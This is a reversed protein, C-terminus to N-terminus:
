GPGGTNKCHVALVNRGPKLAKRAEARLPMEEFRPGPAQLALVGNVYVEAHDDYGVLLLLDNWKGEPLKFERWLWIDPTNWDTRVSAFEQTGFAGIGQKWEKDDFDAKQWGEAPQQTTYHWKQGPGKATPVMSWLEPVRAWLAQWEKQEHAPLRALAAADRLGALDAENRWANLTEVIAPRDQPPGSNFAKDWATREAKLWDLAQGRLKAKAADDLQPGDKGARAAALAAARAAHYRHQAQRDDGLKPDAQLARAFYTTAKDNRGNLAYAAALKLWPDTFKPVALHRQERESNLPDPSVSLRFRGLQYRPDAKFELTVRLGTGDPVAVPEALEFVAFHATGGGNIAWGTRENADIAAAVYRENQSFDAWANALKLSRAAAPKTAPDLQAKITTLTFNGNDARGPGNQPLSGHTLVELRLARISVPPHRFTLTYVDNPPNSGSALISNDELTTLTAGGESKMEGPKLVTWRTTDILLLDALEAALAANDPEKALKAEFLARARTRATNALPDNGREAYHRTLEAQFRGDDAASRALELLVTQYPAAAAIVLAKGARDDARQLAKGFFELAKENGGNLAYAVGLKSWPDTLKLAALRKKERDFTAPDTSVSLRFRGLTHQPIRSKCELTVRLAMDPTERLPGALDFLAFHRKGGEPHIAWGTNDDTDIACDVNWGGQSFDAFARALKLTRAGSVNTLSDLQVNITTLVFNGNGANRGPGNAPLSEHPLVELRLQQIRPPSNRFTLAYVDKAPNLGSVLISNDELVTLTAGGESKMAGPKLDAKTEGPRLVTWRTTDSLLLDALETALAANDPEKALRGEFWARARTRATNALPSNSREDYHRTLEAQFRGDNPASEALKELLGPLPAATAIIRAKGARDATVKLEAKLWDLAQQRLKANSAADFPPEDKGQGAILVAVRAFELRETSNAPEAAKAVEAWFHTFAKQEEPPLKALAAQDRIGALAREQQWQWLNRAIFVRPPQAKSWAVLEAKLWDLAQRRLEAKAIDDLPLQNKGKGAATLAAARAAAYRDFSRFPLTRAPRFGVNGGRGPPREANRNAARLSSAPNDLGGGRLARWAANPIETIDELDDTAKGIGSDSYPKSADQCWEWDNGHMDFLGFDNPKLSGVPWSKNPGNKQYWAYRPLLEDSEGFYFRTVAGARCAFEWEAETPLRYGTRQLYNAAMKMGPAYKGEANPEYCWQDPPIGEQESLWNCYKAADFWSVNNVPCDDSPAHQRSVSHHKRFRLFQDVTVEKSAIAFSRSIRTWHRFEDKGEPGGARGEEALPSGMWYEMPGPVVVLMQGQGNVYWRAEDKGKEKKLEHEIQELTRSQQQRDEAWAENTEKLWAEKKWQRLLWEAAAHLGPATATRYMDLVKPLLAKRDEPTFTKESFEGLSLLLAFRITPDSERDLQKVIARPDAGLPALAHILYSRVQPDPSHKLLPWVKEPRNMRLLAVAANVQRKTLNEKSATLDVDLAYGGAAQFFEVKILHKGRKHGVTVSTATPSNPGWNEFVVENDLWVRVGDDFTSTLRYEGEGLTVEATAVAAFFEGPVKPTVPRPPDRGDVFRLHAVKREDLVPSKLVAGWDAPPNWQGRPNKGANDWRHFRVTWDSYAPPLLQRSLESTLIPVGREGQEKLKPYIVAFQKDDADMLLDALVLPQDAAYDALIDTARTREASRNTSRYVLSLPALLQVRVPRLAGKWATLDAAPVALLDNVVAVQTDQDAVLRPELWVPHAWASGGANHVRLELHKISRISVACDQIDGRKALPTSKWISKGNGLVEFTLPATPNRQKAALAPIGVRAVFQSFPRDLDYSVSAFTKAAPHTFLSHPCRAGDVVIPFLGSCNVFGDKRFYQDLVRVNKEKLTSLFVVAEVHLNSGWRKSDPDYKALAAAARLRQSEKGKEPKEVVAWLRDLLRDKYPFLADRVVPLVDRPNADLLRGFLYDVQGPDAPVLALSAHFKQPSTEPVARLMRDTWQRFEAMQAIIPPVKPTDVNLALQVLGYAKAEKTKEEAIRRQLAESKRADRENQAAQAENERLRNFYGAALLSAVAVLVLVAALAGSLAAIGPNHRAWRWYREVQTQRRAQIPEDDQFRKLDAELEAASPYRRAPDREIAKHVITVLDRPVEPNLRDLRAPEATTVQKILRNREKEDFAPRFALLEYLTLGLAYVDGRADSNGDFAEPPMYRLTGLIDGTHTLDQQDNAKALGFDTVWVTGTTDLLLNSPKTDRHLIGQRHAYELADAVQIGIRAV